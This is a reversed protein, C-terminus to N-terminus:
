REVVNGNRNADKILTDIGYQDVYCVLDQSNEIEYGNTILTSVMNRSLGLSKYLKEQINARMQMANETCEDIEKKDITNGTDRLTEFAGIVNILCEDIAAYDDITHGNLYSYIEDCAESM